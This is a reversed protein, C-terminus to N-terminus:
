LSDPDEASRLSRMISVPVDVPSVRCGLWQRARLLRAAGPEHWRYRGVLLRLLISSQNPNPGEANAFIQTFIKSAGHM